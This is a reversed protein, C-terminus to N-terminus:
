DVLKFKQGLEANEIPELLFKIAQWTNGLFFVPNWAASSQEM